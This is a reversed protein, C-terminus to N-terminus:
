YLSALSIAFCGVSWPVAGCCLTIWGWVHWRQFVGIKLLVCDWLHLRVMYKILWIPYPAYKYTFLTSNATVRPGCTYVPVKPWEVCVPFYHQSSDWHFLMSFLGKSFTFAPVPLFTFFMVNLKWDTHITFSKRFCILVQICTTDYLFSTNLCIQLSALKSPCLSQASLSPHSLFFHRM